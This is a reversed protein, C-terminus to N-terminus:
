NLYNIPVITNCESISKFGTTAYFHFTSHIVQIEHPVLQRPKQPPDLGRIETGVFHYNETHIIFSFVIAMFESGCSHTM